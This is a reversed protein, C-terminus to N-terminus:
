DGIVRGEKSFKRLAFKYLFNYLSLQLKYLVFINVKNLAYIKNKYQNLNIKALVERWFDKVCKLGGTTIVPHSKM